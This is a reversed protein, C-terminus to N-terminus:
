LRQFEHIRETELAMEEMKIEKMYEDRRQQMQIKEDKEEQKLRNIEKQIEM